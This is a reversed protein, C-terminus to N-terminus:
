IHPSTVPTPQRGPNMIGAATAVFADVAAFRKALVCRARASRAPGKRVIVVAIGSEGARQGFGGIQRRPLQDAVCTILTISRISLRAWLSSSGWLGM